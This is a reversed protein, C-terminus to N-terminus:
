ITRIYARFMCMTRRIYGFFVGLFRTLLSYTNLMAETWINYDPIEMFIFYNLNTPYSMRELFSIKPNISGSLLLENFHFYIHINATYM